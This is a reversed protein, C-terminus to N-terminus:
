GKRQGHTKFMEILLTPAPPPALSVSVNQDTSGCAQKDRIFSTPLAAIKEAFALIEYRKTMQKQVRMFLVCNPATHGRSYCNHCILHQKCQDTPAIADLSNESSPPVRSNSLGPHTSRARQDAHPLRTAPVTHRGLALALDTKGSISTKQFSKFELSHLGHQTLSM